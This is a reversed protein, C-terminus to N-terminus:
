VLYEFLKGGLLLMPLITAVCVIRIHATCYEAGDQAYDTDYDPDFRNINGNVALWIDLGLMIALVIDLPSWIVASADVALQFLLKATVNAVVANILMIIGAYISPVMLAHKHKYQLALMTDAITIAGIYIIIVISLRINM